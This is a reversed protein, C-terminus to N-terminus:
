SRKRETLDRLPDTIRCHGDIDIECVLVSQQKCNDILPKDTQALLQSYGSVVSIIREFSQLNERPRVDCKSSLIWHSGYHAAGYLM